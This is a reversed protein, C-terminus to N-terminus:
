HAPPLSKLIDEPIKMKGTGVGISLDPKNAGHFDTGGTIFLGFEGALKRVFAEDNGHNRSYIAEIGKLGYSVLETLLTRIETVSLKYLLPHALVPIGGANKILDIGEKPTLFRRSVYYPGKQSLIKRFAADMSGVAGKEYLFRAFHARTIITDPFRATLAEYSIPYGGNALNECMKQNREDRRRASGELTDLLEKQTYDLQYGLIHIEKKRAASFAHECSLEVGPIVTLGHSRGSQIARLVGAVTDHDTLAIATLEAECALTILEEPTCTGDSFCSHVHLDICNM